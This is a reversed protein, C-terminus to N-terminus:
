SSSLLLLLLTLLKMLQHFHMVTAIFIVTPLSNGEACKNWHTGGFYLIFLVYVYNFFSSLLDLLIM